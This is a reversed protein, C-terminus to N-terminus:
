ELIDKFNVGDIKRLRGFIKPAYEVINLSISITESKVDELLIGEGEKQNELGEELFNGKQKKMSIRDAFKNISDLLMNKTKSAFKRFSKSNQKMIELDLKTKKLTKKENCFQKLQEGTVIQTSFDINEHKEQLIEIISIM